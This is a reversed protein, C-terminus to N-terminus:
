GRGPLTALRTRLEELDFPKQLLAVGEFAQVLNLAEQNVRGTAVLVPVEPCLARLRPLTAAGGLGPMNLDLIVV